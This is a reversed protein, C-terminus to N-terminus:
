KVWTTCRYRGSGRIKAMKRVTRVKRSAKPRVGFCGTSSIESHPAPKQFRSAKEICIAIIRTVPWARALEGGILRRSTRSAPVALLGAWPTMSTAKTPETAQAMLQPKPSTSPAM